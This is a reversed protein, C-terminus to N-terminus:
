SKSASRQQAVVSQLVEVLDDAQFPKTLCPVREREILSRVGTETIDSCALVINREAGPHNAALWRYIEQGSWRGPLSTDLVVADFRDIQLRALAEEGSAVAVVQAGSRALVEREFDRVAPEDDVILIRGTLRPATKQEMAVPQAPAAAAPLYVRFVAGGESHNFARMEGGHEKVIGYCISLGLGTGRGIPKTTYFPDFVKGPDKMGPGFDRVEVRLRGEDEDVAIDIRQAGKEQVADMANNIINLFV